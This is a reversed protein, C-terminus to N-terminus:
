TPHTYLENIMQQIDNFDKLSIQHTINHEQIYDKAPKTFYSTTAIIGGTAKEASVVGYLRQIVDIGVHNTPEYKKCEVYFLFSCLDNKAIFIDKGGDRTQPTLKVSFGKKEFLKAIVREFDYSSLQYFLYPNKSLQTLADDEIESVTIITNKASKQTLPKGDIGVICNHYIIEKPIEGIDIILNIISQILVFNGHTINYINQLLPIDINPLVKKIYSITEIQTLPFLTINNIDKSYMQPKLSTILIITNKVINNYFYCLADLVANDIYESMFLDDIILLYPNKQKKIYEIDKLWQVLANSTLPLNYFFPEDFPTLVTFGERKKRRAYLAVLVTKGVGHEGSINFIGHDIKQLYTLYYEIQSNYIIPEVFRYSDNYM